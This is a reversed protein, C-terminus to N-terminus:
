GYHDIRRDRSGPVIRFIAKFAYMPQGAKALDLVHGPANQAVDLVKFERGVIHACGQACQALGVEM